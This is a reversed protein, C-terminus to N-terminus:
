DKGLAAFVTNLIARSVEDKSGSAERREGERSVIQVTNTALTFSQDALNGVIFDLQKRKLKEEAYKLLEEKSGTEAAFGVLRLPGGSREELSERQEGVLALIDPNPVLKLTSERSKDEKLKSSSTMEPRFDSVAAAKFLVRESKGVSLRASLAKFVEEEMERATEVSVLNVGPIPPLETPGSVLTVSAGRLAAAKALAYGMKGTSRNTLFRIPDLYERTPGATVVVEVGSLTENSGRSDIIEGVRKVIVGLDALRGEGVWGCALEGEEPDVFEVGLERLTNVNRKTLPNQWMNVNMAPAILVPAKTALFIANVLNDAIGFAAKAIFDATAPAVLVIDAEDALRIHGIQQEEQLDFFNTSVPNGSLTQLTLPTVFETASKSMAARVAYGAKRLERVLEASKYAAISGTVLLTIRKLKIDDQLM